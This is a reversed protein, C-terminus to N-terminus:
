IINLFLRYPIIKMIFVKSVVNIYNVVPKWKSNVIQCIFMRLEVLAVEAIISSTMKYFTIPEKLTFKSLLNKTQLSM